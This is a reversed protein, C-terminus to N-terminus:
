PIIIRVVQMCRIFYTRELQLNTFQRMLYRFECFDKTVCVIVLDDPLQEAVLRLLM